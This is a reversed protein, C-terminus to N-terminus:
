GVFVAVGDITTEERSVGVGIRCSHGYGGTGAAASRVPVVDVRTDFVSLFATLAGKLGDVAAEVSHLMFHVPEVSVHPAPLRSLTYQFPTV